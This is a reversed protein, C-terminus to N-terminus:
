GGGTARTAVSTATAGVAGLDTANTDTTAGADGAVTRTQTTTIHIAPLGMSGVALAMTAVILVLGAGLPVRHRRMAAKRTAAPVATLVARAVLGGLLAAIALGILLVWVWGRTRSHVVLATM